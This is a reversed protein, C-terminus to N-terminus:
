VGSNIGKAEFGARAVKQPSALPNSYQVPAVEPAKAGKALSDSKAAAAGGASAAASGKVVFFYVLVGIIILAAAGGGAGGAIVAIDTSSSTAPAPPPALPAGCFYGTATANSCGPVNYSASGLMAGAPTMLGITVRGDGDVVAAFTYTRNFVTFNGGVTPVAMNSAASGSSGSGAGSGSSGSGSGSGASGGLVPPAVVASATLTPCVCNPAPMAINPKLNVTGAASVVISFGSALCLATCNDVSSSLSTTRATAGFSVVAPPSPTASLSPTTTSSTSAGPPLSSAATPTAPVAVASLSATGTPPVGSPTATAAASATVSAAPTVSPTPAPAVDLSVLPCLPTSGSCGTVRAPVYGGEALSPDAAFRTVFTSADKGPGFAAYTGVFGSASISFDSAPLSAELVSDSCDRAFVTVPCAASTSMPVRLVMANRVNYQSSTFIIDRRPQYLLTYSQNLCGATRADPYAQALRIDSSLVTLNAAGYCVPSAQRASCSRLWFYANQTESTISDYTSIRWSGLGAVADSLEGVHLRFTISSPSPMTSLPNSSSTFQMLDSSGYYSPVSYYLTVNLCMCGSISSVSRLLPMIRLNGDTTQGINPAFSLTFGGVLCAKDCASTVATVNVLAPSSPLLLGSGEFMRHCPSICDPTSSCAMRMSASPQYYWPASCVGASPGSEMGPLCTPGRTSACYGCGWRNSCGGCNLNM